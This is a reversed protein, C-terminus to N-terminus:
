RWLNTRALDLVKDGHGNLVAKVMYLTFGKAQDFQITPPIALEQRHVVVDLLAPGNYALVDRVAGVLEGPDEVRVGHLEIARAM